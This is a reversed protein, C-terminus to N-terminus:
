YALTLSGMNKEPRQQPLMQFIHSQPGRGTGLGQKHTWRGGGREGYGSSPVQNLPGPGRIKIQLYISGNSSGPSGKILLTCPQGNWNGM